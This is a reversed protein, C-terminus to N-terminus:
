FRRQNSRVTNSAASTRDSPTLAASTTPCRTRLHATLIVLQRVRLYEVRWSSSRSERRFVRSLSASTCFCRLRATCCALACM